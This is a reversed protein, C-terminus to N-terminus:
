RNKLNYNQLKKLLLDGDRLCVNVGAGCLAWFMNQVKESPVNKGVCFDALELYFDNKMRRVYLCINPYIEFPHGGNYAYVEFWKAFDVPCEPSQITGFNDIVDGVWGVTYKNYACVDVGVFINPNLGQKIAKNRMFENMKDLYEANPAVVDADIGALAYKVCKLYYNRTFNKIPRVDQQLILKQESLIKSQVM